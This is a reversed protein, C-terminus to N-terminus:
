PNNSGQNVGWDSGSPAKAAVSDDPVTFSAELLNLPKFIATDIYDEYTTGSVNAIVQGLLDFGLNSYSTEKQPAFVPNM